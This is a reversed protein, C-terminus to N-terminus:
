NFLKAKEVDLVLKGGAGTTEFCISDVAIICCTGIFFLAFIVIYKSVTKKM